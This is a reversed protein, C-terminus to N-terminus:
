AGKFFKNVTIFIFYEGQGVPHHSIPGVGAIQSLFCKDPCIVGQGIKLSLATKGGPNIM